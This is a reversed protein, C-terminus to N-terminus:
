KEEKRRLMNLVDADPIHFIHVLRRLEEITFLYPERKKKQYTAKCMCLLKATRADDYGKRIQGAELSARVERNMLENDSPKLAPM